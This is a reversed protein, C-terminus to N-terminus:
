PSRSTKSRRKLVRDVAKELGDTSLGLVGLVQNSLDLFTSKTDSWGHERVLDRHLPVLSRIVYHRLYNGPSGGRHSKELGLALELRSQIQALVALLVKDGHRYALRLRIEVMEAELGAILGASSEAEHSELAHLSVEEALNIRLAREFAATSLLV